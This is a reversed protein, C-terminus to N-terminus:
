WVDFNHELGFQTWGVINETFEQYVLTRFTSKTTFSLYRNLAPWPYPKECDRLINLKVLLSYRHDYPLDFIKVSEEFYMMFEEVPIFSDRTM